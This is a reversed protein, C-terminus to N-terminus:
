TYTLLCQGHGGLAHATWRERPSRLAGATCASCRLSASTRHRAAPLGAARHVLQELRQVPAASSAKSRPLTWILRVEQGSIRLCVVLGPRHRRGATSLRAGRGMCLCLARYPDTQPLAAPAGADSRRAVGTRPRDVTGSTQTMELVRHERVHRREPMGVLQMQHVSNATLRHAPVAAMGFNHRARRNRRTQSSAAYSTSSRLETCMGYQGAVAALRRRGGGGVAFRLTVTTNM